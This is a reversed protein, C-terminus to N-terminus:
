IPLMFMYQSSTHFEGGFSRKYNYIGKNKKPEVGGFDYIEIGDNKSQKILEWSLYKAEFGKNNENNIDVRLFELVYNGFTLGILYGMKRDNISVSFGTLNLGISKNELSLKYLKFLFIKKCVPHFGKKICFTEYESWFNELDTQNIKTCICNIKNARKIHKQTTKSFSKIIEDEKKEKLNLLFTYQKKSYPIRTFHKIIENNNTQNNFVTLLGLINNRRMHKKLEKYLIPNDRQYPIGYPVWAFKLGFRKKIFLPFAVRMKETNIYFWSVESGTLEKAKIWEWSHLPVGANEIVIQNWINKDIM